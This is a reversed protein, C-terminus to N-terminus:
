INLRDSLTMLAIDYKLPDESDWQKFIGTLEECAKWSPGKTKLLNRTLKCVHVDMVAYLDSQDRSSWIGLDPGEKRTMWRVYMCIRKCASKNITGVKAPSLWDCIDSIVEITKKGKFLSELSESPKLKNNEALVKYLNDCVLKFSSTNLTRYVCNNKANKYSDLYQRDIIFKSPSWSMENSLMNLATPFIVKRSGWAIMAVFLAGIEIDLQNKAHDLLRYVVGYPDVNKFRNFNFEQSYYYDLVNKDIKLGSFDM